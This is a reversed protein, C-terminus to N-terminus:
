LQCLLAYVFMLFYYGYAYFKEFYILDSDNRHFDVRKQLDLRAGM